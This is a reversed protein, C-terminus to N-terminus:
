ETSFIISEQKTGTATPPPMSEKSFALIRKDLIASLTMKFVILKEL